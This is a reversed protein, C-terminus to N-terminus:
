HISHTNWKEKHTFHFNWPPYAHREHRALSFCKAPAAQVLGM